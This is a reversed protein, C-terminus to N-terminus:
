PTKGVLQLPNTLKGAFGGNVKGDQVFFLFSSDHFQGVRADVTITAGPSTEFTVGHIETSTLTTASLSSAGSTQLYGAGPVETKANAIAGTVASVNVQFDCSQSTKKTDCTWWVHWKGGKGYEIFVGVGEGPLANMTKDTDVEVLIPATAAPPTSSGTTGSGTGPDTTETSGSGGSGSSSVRRPPDADVVCAVAASALVGAVCIRAITSELLLM